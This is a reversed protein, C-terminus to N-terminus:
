NLGIGLVFTRPEQMNPFTERLSLFTQNFTDGAMKGDHAEGDTNLIFFIKFPENSIRAAAIIRHAAQIAAEALCMLMTGERCDLVRAAFDVSCKGHHSAKSGFRGNLIKMSLFDLLKGCYRMYFM